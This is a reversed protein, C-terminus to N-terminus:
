RKLNSQPRLFESFQFHVLQISLIVIYGKLLAGAEESTSSFAAIINQHSAESINQPNLFTVWSEMLALNLINHRFKGNKSHLKLTSSPQEKIYYKISGRHHGM